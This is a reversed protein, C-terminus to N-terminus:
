GKTKYTAILEPVPRPSFGYYSPQSPPSTLQVVRLGNKGDAIYANTTWSSSESAAGTPENQGSTGCASPIMAFCTVALGRTYSRHWMPAMGSQEVESCRGIDIHM